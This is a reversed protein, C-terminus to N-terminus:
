CAARTGGHADAARAGQSELWLGVALARFVPWPDEGPAPPRALAAKMAPLDAFPGLRPSLGRARLSAPAGRAILLDFPDVITPSKPRRRLAEPLGDMCLRLLHKDVCWPLAPLALVFQVVRLDLLPHRFDIPRGLYAADHADFFAGWYPAAFRLAAAARPTTALPPLAGRAWRAALGARKWLDARLWAPRRLAAAARRRALSTRVGMPPLTRRRGVYFALERVLTALRGQALRRRWHLAFDTVFLTDGDYGTLVVRSEDALRSFQEMYPVIFCDATPEPPALRGAWDFLGGDDLPQFDIPISLSRAALAAWRPEDDPILREYTACYARLETAPSARKAAAAVVPSDVGGSLLIAARDTRLRDRVARDLLDRFAAVCDGPRAWTTERAEPWAFYQRLRVGERSVVLLHGPPIRKVDAYITLDRDQYHGALIFDGVAREDLQDRVGPHLRVPALGNAGAFLDGRDAYYFARAGLADVACVLKRRARDWLAFSFDGLLHPLCEEGWADYAHLILEADPAAALPRGRDGLRALLEDRGDLRADATIVLRDDLWVPGAQPEAERTTRFLTHGLGVEGRAWSGQGDPGRFRQAAVMRGLLAPDAAAGGRAFVAALGSV